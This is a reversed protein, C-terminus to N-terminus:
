FDMYDNQIVALEHKKIEMEIKHKELFCKFKEEKIKLQREQLDILRDLKDELTKKSECVVKLNKQLLQLKLDNSATRKQKKPLPQENEEDSDITALDVTAPTDDGSDDVNVNARKAGGFTKVPLGEVAVEL